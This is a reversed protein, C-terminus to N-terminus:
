ICSHTHGTNQKNFYPKNITSFLGTTQKFYPKNFIFSSHTRAHIRMRTHQHRRIKVYM